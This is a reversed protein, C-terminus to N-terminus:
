SKGQRRNIQRGIFELLNTPKRGLLWGLVNPNGVLGHREYYHFMAVLTEIQYEGLGAREANQRWSARDIEQANVERELATALHGAVERQDLPATGVLEYTAGLHVSGSLLEAAVEAVDQLDVLSLSASLSYPVEYIGENVIKDWSALINHMYATPQVISYTLKSRFLAAEVKMKKWHHPMARTQPHLVSHYVLRGVGMEQACDIILDGIAVEAPHMNPCIHYVADINQCARLVANRDILDGVHVDAAGSSLATERYAFRYVYARVSLGQASLARVVAQGTKGAAGTVLIM